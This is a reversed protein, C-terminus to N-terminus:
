SGHGRAPAVTSVWEMRRGKSDLLPDVGFSELSLDPWSVMAPRPQKKQGLMAFIAADKQGKSRPSLLGFNRIVHRYHDPVHDALLRVFEEPKFTTAVVCNVKHDRTRFAVETKKLKFFRHQAVPPHKAYRGGYLLFHEKSAFQDVHVSWWRREYQATLLKKVAYNGLESKLVGADLATRLYTIVAYIWMPMLAAGPLELPVWEAESENWGLGSILVHLHTNFNMHRGFTHPVVMIAAEAGFQLKVWNKIVDAGLTPLDNLLHRNQRFIEWLVSPMSFVVGAYQMEPLTAMQERQWLLTMRRGCKPCMRSKCTWYVTKEDSGSAYKDGGMAPTGCLLVKRFNKRVVPRVGPQDWTSKTWKLIRRIPQEIRV